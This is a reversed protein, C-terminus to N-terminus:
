KIVGASGSFMPSATLTDIADSADRYRQSGALDFSLEYCFGPNFEFNTKSMLTGANQTTGDLDVYKDYIPPIGLGYWLDVSGEIVDWHAFDNYNFGPIETDFNDGFIVTQAMSPPSYIVLILLSALILLKKVIM